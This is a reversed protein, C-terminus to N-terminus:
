RKCNRPLPPSAGGERVGSKEVITQPLHPTLPLPGQTAGGELAAQPWGDKWGLTTSITDRAQGAELAQTGWGDEREKRPHTPHM